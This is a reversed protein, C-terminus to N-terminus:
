LSVSDTEDEKNKQKRNHISGRESITYIVKRDNERVEIYFM